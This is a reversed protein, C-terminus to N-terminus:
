MGRMSRAFNAVLRDKIDRCVATIDEAELIGSVMVVRRAGAEFVADLNERKVGGICFVPLQVSGHVERIGDTGIADADPKTPTAFLPGYAVYDPGEAAADLAQGVSHTSKGVLMPRPSAARAQAVSHDDQGVHCGDAGSPEVLQPHDNILFPIERERALPAIARAMELIADPEHGKARLQMVDVGGDAMRVATDRLDGPAVYGLDLIGYLLCEHMEKM